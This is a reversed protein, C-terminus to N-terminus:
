ILRSDNMDFQIFITKVSDFQTFLNLYHRGLSGLQTLSFTPCLIISNLILSCRVQIIMDNGSCQLDPSCLILLM